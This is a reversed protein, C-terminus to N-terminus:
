KKAKRFLIQYGLVNPNKDTAADAIYGDGLSKKLMNSIRQTLLLNAKVWFLKLGHLKPLGFQWANGIGEDVLGLPNYYGDLVEVELGLEGALQALAYRTYRHYDVPEQHVKLLFPVTVLVRGGPKLLKAIRVMLARYEYVHEIVNALVVLDFSGDKFPCEEILNVALDIEPYPYIDLGLYAQRAFIPKFDGRGAGVDLVEADEPLMKATKELFVWNFRRWITGKEPGREIMETPNLDVPASTFVPKGNLLKVSYDCKSCKWQKAASRDFDAKCKPCVIKSTLEKM